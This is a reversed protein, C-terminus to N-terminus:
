GTESGPDEQDEHGPEDTFEADIIDEEGSALLGSLGSAIESAGSEQNARLDEQLERMQVRLDANPVRAKQGNYIRILFLLALLIGDRGEFLRRDIPMVYEVIEEHTVLFTYRKCMTEFDDEVVLRM